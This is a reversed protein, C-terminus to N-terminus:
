RDLYNGSLIKRTPLGNGIELYNEPFVNETPLKGQQSPVACDNDSPDFYSEWGESSGVCKQLEEVQRLPSAQLLPYQDM